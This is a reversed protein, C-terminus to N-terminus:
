IYFFNTIKNLFQQKNRYYHYYHIIDIDLDIEIVIDESNTSYIEIIIDNNYNDLQTYPYM